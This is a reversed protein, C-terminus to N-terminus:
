QLSSENKPFIQGSLCKGYDNVSMFSISSDKSTMNEVFSEKKDNCSPCQKYALLKELKERDEDSMGGKSGDKLLNGISHATGKTIDIGLKAMDATVDTTNNIFEGTSYGFMSLVKLISPGFIDVISKLFTGMIILVQIGLISLILLVLVLIILNNNSFAQELISMREPQTSVSSSDM